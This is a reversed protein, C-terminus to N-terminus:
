RGGRLEREARTWNDFDSGGQGSSWIEYARRAIQEHTVVKAAGPTAPRGAAAAPAATKPIPSNRVETRAVPKSAVPQPAPQAAPQSVPKAVPKAM